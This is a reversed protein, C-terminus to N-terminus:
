IGLARRLAYRAGIRIMQDFIMLYISIVLGLARRIV